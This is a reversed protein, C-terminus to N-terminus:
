KKKAATTKAAASSKKAARKKLNANRVRKQRKKLLKADRNDRKTWTIKTLTAM